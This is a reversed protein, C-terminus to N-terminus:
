FIMDYSVVTTSYTHSFRFIELAFLVPIENSKRKETRVKEYSAKNFASPHQGVSQQVTTDHDNM